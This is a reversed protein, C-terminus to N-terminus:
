PKEVLPQIKGTGERLTGGRITNWQMTRCFFQYISKQVRSSVQRIFLNYKLVNQTSNVFFFVACGVSIKKMRIMVGNVEIPRTISLPCKQILFNSSVHRCLATAFFVSLFEFGNVSVVDWNECVFLAAAGSIKWGGGRRSIVYMCLQWIYRNM